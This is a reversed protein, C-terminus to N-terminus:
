NSISFINAFIFHPPNYIHTNTNPPNTGTHAGNKIKNKLKKIAFKAIM